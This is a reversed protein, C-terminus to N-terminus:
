RGLTRHCGNCLAQVKQVQLYMQTPDGNTPHATHCDICTAANSDVAQWQALYIHFHNNFTRNSMTQSHCKICSADGLKTLTIAPSHYKGSNYAMLDVAGQTLGEVRGFPGGGSHCDICRVSKSTHFAALSVAPTAMAQQFYKTEPETHCSACFSDQNEQQIAYATGGAGVLLAGVGIGIVAILAFRKWGTLARIREGLSPRRMVPQRRRSAPPM